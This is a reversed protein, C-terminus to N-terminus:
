YKPIVRNELPRYMPDSPEPTLEKKMNQIKIGIWLNQAGYRNAVLINTLYCVGRIAAARSAYQIIYL